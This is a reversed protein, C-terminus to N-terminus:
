YSGVNEAHFTGSQDKSQWTGVVENGARVVIGELYLESYGFVELKTTNATFKCDPGVSYAGGLFSADSGPVTAAGRVAYVHSGNFTGSGDFNALM